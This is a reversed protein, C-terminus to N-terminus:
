AAVSFLAIAGAVAVNLSEKQGRMPIQLHVDAQDLVTQDLGGIEPGVILALKESSPKFNKINIAELTQEIAAIEFRDRKLSAITESIDKTHLWPVSIEAGLATKRIRQHTREALHPLREDGSHKPYPTYGSLVVQSAGLGDASRLLSGVNHASRVNHVILVVELM